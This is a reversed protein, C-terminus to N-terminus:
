GSVSEILPNKQDRWPSRLSGLFILFRFIEMWHGQEM